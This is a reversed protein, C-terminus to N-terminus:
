KNKVSDVKAKVSDALASLPPQMKSMIEMMEAPEMFTWHEIAKGDKFKSLEIAKMNYKEGAKLGMQENKLTGTFRLWSMVYEEDALEKIIETKPNINNASMKEFETKMNALGKIDGDDGAHDIADEAIYDGLKSFDKKDFCQQIGHMADLNAKTKPSPGPNNNCSIFYMSFLAITAAALKKMCNNKKFLLNSSHQHQLIM